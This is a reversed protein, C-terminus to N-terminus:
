LAIGDREIEIAIRRERKKLHEFEEESLVFVSVPRLYELEIEAVQDLIRRKMERTLERVLIAVDVDSSESYDGRARSGFLIMKFAEPGLLHVLKEKLDELEQNREDNTMIQKADHL